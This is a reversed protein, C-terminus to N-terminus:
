YVNEFCVHVYTTEGNMSLLVYWRVVIYFFMDLWNVEIRICICMREFPMHISLSSINILKSCNCVTRTGSLKIIISGFTNEFQM